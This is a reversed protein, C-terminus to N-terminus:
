DSLVSAPQQGAQREPAAESQLLYRPAAFNVDGADARCFPNSPAIRVIVDCSTADLAVAAFAAAAFLWELVALGRRIFHAGKQPTEGPRDANGAHLGVAEEIVDENIIRANLANAIGVSRVCLELARGPAGQAHRALARLGSESFLDDPRLGAEQFQHCVLQALEGASVHGLEYHKVAVSGLLSQMPFDVRRRLDTRAALVLRLGSLRRDPATMLRQLNGVIDAGLAQANDIVLVVSKRGLSKMRCVDRARAMWRDENQQLDPMALDRSLISALEEFQLGARYRSIVTFGLMRLERVLFSLLATKGSGRGGSLLFIGGGRLIADLLSAYASRLEDTM